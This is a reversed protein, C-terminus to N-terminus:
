KAQIKTTNKHTCRKGKTNEKKKGGRSPAHTDTGIQCSGWERSIQFAHVLDLTLQNSMRYYYYNTVTFYVKIKFKKNLLIPNMVPTFHMPFFEFFFAYSIAVLSM